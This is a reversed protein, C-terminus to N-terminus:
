PGGRGTVPIAKIKCKKFKFNIYAKGRLFLIWLAVVTEM